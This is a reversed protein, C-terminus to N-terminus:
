AAAQALVAAVIQYTPTAGRKAKLVQHAQQIAVLRTAEAENSPPYWDGRRTALYVKHVLEADEESMGPVTIARPRGRAGSPVAHGLRTAQDRVRVQMSPRRLIVYFTRQPIGLRALADKRSSGTAALAELVAAEEAAHHDQLMLELRAALPASAADMAEQSGDARAALWAMAVDKFVFPQM